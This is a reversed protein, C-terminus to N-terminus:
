TMPLASAVSSSSQSKQTRRPPVCASYHTRSRGVRGEPQGSAGDPSGGHAQRDRDPRGSDASLRFPRAVARVRGIHLRRRAELHGSVAARVGVCHASGVPEWAGVTAADGGDGRRTTGPDHRRTPSRHVDGLLRRKRLRREPRGGARRCPPARSVPSSHRGRGGDHVALGATRPLVRHPSSRRRDPRGPDQPAADFGEGSHPRSDCRTGHRSCVWRGKFIWGGCVSCSM